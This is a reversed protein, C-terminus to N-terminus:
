IIQILGNLSIISGYFTASPTFDMSWKKRQFFYRQIFFLLISMFFLADHLNHRRLFIFASMTGENKYFFREVRVHYARLQRKTPLFYFRSLFLRFFDLFNKLLPFKPAFQRQFSNFHVFSLSLFAAAFLSLTILHEPTKIFVKGTKNLFIIFIDVRM